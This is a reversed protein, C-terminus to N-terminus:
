HQPMDRLSYEYVYVYECVYVHAHMTEVVVTCLNSALIWPSRVLFHLRCHTPESCYWQKVGYHVAIHNPHGSVGLEDFTSVQVM